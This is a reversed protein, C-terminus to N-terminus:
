LIIANTQCYAQLQEEGATKEVEAAAIETDWQAINKLQKEKDNQIRDLKIASELFTNVVAWAPENKEKLPELLKARKKFSVLTVEALGNHEAIKYLPQMLLNKGENTM